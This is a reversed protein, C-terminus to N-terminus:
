FASLNLIIFRFKTFDKTWLCLLLTTDISMMIRDNSIYVNSMKLSLSIKLINLMAIKCYMRYMKTRELFTLTQSEAGMKQIYCTTGVYAEKIQTHIKYLRTM